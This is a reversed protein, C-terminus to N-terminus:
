ESDYKGITRKETLKLTKYIKFVKRGWREKDLNDVGALIYSHLKGETLHAIAFESIIDFMVAHVKSLM